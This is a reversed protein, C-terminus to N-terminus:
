SSNPVHAEFLVLVISYFLVLLINLSEELM